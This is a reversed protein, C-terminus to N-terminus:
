GRDQSQLTPHSLRTKYSGWLTMKRSIGCGSFSKFMAEILVRNSHFLYDSLMFILTNGVCHFNIFCIKYELTVHIFRKYVCGPMGETKACENKDRSLPLLITLLLECYGSLPPGRPQFKPPRASLKRVTLFLIQPIPVAV